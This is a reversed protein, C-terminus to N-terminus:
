RMPMATTVMRIDTVTMTMTMMATAKMIMLTSMRMLTRMPVRTGLTTACLMANPRLMMSMGTSMTMVMLTTRHAPLM